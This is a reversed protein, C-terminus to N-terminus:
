ISTSFGTIYINNKDKFKHELYYNFISACVSVRLMIIFSYGTLITKETFFILIFNFPSALYNFFNRYIPLGMSMNYSYLLSKFHTIRYWMEKLMPGYQHFYDVKLTTHMGYPTIENIAFVINIIIFAILFTIISRKNEKFIKEM